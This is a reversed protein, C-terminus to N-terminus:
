HRRSNKRIYHVATELIMWTLYGGVISADIWDWPQHRPTIWAILLGVTILAIIKQRAFSLVFIKGLRYGLFTLLVTLAIVIKEGDKLFSHYAEGIASRYLILAFILLAAGFKLRLYDDEGGKKKASINAMGLLTLLFAAILLLIANLM